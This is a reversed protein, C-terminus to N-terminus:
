AKGQQKNHLFFSKNFPSSFCTRWSHATFDGVNGVGEVLAKLALSYVIVLGADYATPPLYFYWIIWGAFNVLMSLLLILKLRYVMWCATRVGSLILIAVLNIIAAGGHRAWGDLSPGILEFLLAAGVFIVAGYLNQATRQFCVSLTIAYLLATTTDYLM